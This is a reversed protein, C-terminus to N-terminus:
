RGPATAPTANSEKTPATVRSGSEECLMCVRDRLKERESLEATAGNRLLLRASM